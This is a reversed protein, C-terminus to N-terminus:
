ATQYLSGGAFRLTQLDMIGIKEIRGGEVPNDSGSWGRSGSSSNKETDEDFRVLCTQSPGERDVSQVTGRGYQEHLVRTGYEFDSAKRGTSRSGTATRLGPPGGKLPAKTDM